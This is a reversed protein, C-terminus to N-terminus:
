VKRGWATLFFQLAYFNDSRMEELAQKSLRDLEEPTAIGHKLLVPRALEFSVLHNQYMIGQADTGSSYDISLAKHQIQQFGAQKLLPCLMPVIGIHQGDPSFSLGAAKLLRMNLVRMQEYALSNSIGYEGETLRMIGGPRLVRYCEKLLKPWEAPPMFAFLFRGNVLDFSADPFDLPKLANMLRYRANPLEYVLAQTRAYMLMRISLDIGMVKKEPYARAVHNVWGGSGCAIDLVDHVPSLDLGEPFLGGTFQMFFQDQILLRAMEAEDNADLLYTSPTLYPPIPEPSETPETPEPESPTSM